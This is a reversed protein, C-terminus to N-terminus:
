LVNRASKRIVSIFSELGFDSINLWNDKSCNIRNRCRLVTTTEDCNKNSCFCATCTEVLRLLEQRTWFRKKEGPLIGRLPGERFLNIELHSLLVILTQQFGHTIELSALATTSTTKRRPLASHM